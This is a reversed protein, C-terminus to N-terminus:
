CCANDGLTRMTQMGEADQTAEGPLRGHVSDLIAVIRRAHQQYHFVQEVQRVDRECRRAPLRSRSSGAQLPAVGRGLLLAQGSDRVPFREPRRLLDTFRRCIIRGSGALKGHLTDYLEDRFVCRGLEGCKNCAICGQVAKTGISVIETTIGQKELASAVESLALFTNGQKRPSGNILLVKMIKNKNDDNPDAPRDGGSEKRWLQYSNVFNQWM